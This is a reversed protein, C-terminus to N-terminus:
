NKNGPTYGIKSFLRYGSIDDMMQYPITFRLNRWIPYTMMVTMMQTQVM